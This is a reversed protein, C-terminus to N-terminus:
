SKSEQTRAADAVQDASAKYETFTLPRLGKREAAPMYITEYEYKIHTRYREADRKVDDALDVSTRTPPHVPCPRRLSGDGSPCTCEKSEESPQQTSDLLARLETAETKLGHFELTDAARSITQQEGVTLTSSKADAYLLHKGKGLTQRGRENLSMFSIGTASDGPKSITVSGVAEGADAPARSILERDICTLCVYGGMWDIRLPTHKHEGCGACNTAQTSAYTHPERAEAPADAQARYLDVELRLVQAARVVREIANLGDNDDVKDDGIITAYVTALTETMRKAVYADEDLADAQAPQPTTDGMGAAYADRAIQKPNTEGKAAYDAYWGEFKSDGVHRKDAQAPQLAAYLARIEHDAACEPAQLRKATEESCNHWQGAPLDAVIRYQWQAVAEAASSAAARAYRAGAKFAMWAIGRTAADAIINGVESDFAAREDAPSPAQLGCVACPNNEASPSGECGVCLAAISKPYPQSVCLRFTEACLEAFRKPVVRASSRDPCCAKFDAPIDGLRGCEPCFRIMEEIPAAAPHEGPFAALIGALGSIADACQGVFTGDGTEVQQLVQIAYDIADRRDDTLADARSNETTM